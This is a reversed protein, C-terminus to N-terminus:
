YCIDIQLYNHACCLILDKQYLLHAAMFSVIFIPDHLHITSSSLKYSFFAFFFRHPLIQLYSNISM